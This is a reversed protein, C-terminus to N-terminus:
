GGCVQAPPADAEIFDEPDACPADVEVPADFNGMQFQFVMGAPSETQGVTQEIVAQWWEDLEGILGVVMGEPDVALSMTSELETPELGAAALRQQVGASVVLPLLEDATVQVSWGQSGDDFVVVDNVSTVAGSIALLYGDGNISLTPDSETLDAFDALGYGVWSPPDVVPNSVWYVDSVLRHEIEEGAYGPLDAPASTEGLFQQTGSGVQLEDDFSGTRRMAAQNPAAVPLTQIVELSFGATKRGVTADIAAQLEGLTPLPEDSEATAETTESTTPETESTSPGTEPEATEGPESAVGESTTTSETAADDEEDGSGGCATLAVLAIIIAGLWPLLHGVRNTPSPAHTAM